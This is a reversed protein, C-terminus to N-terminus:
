HLPLHEKMSLLSDLITYQIVSLPFIPLRLVQLGTTHSLLSVCRKKASRRPGHCNAPTASSHVVNTSFPKRYFLIGHSEFSRASVMTGSHQDCFHFDLAVGTLELVRREVLVSSVRPSTECHVM